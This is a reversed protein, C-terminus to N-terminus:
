IMGKAKALPYLISGLFAAQEPTCEALFAAVKPKREEPPIEELKLCFAGFALLLATAEPRTM